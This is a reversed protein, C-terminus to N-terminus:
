LLFMSYKYDVMVEIYKVITEIARKDNNTNKRIVWAILWVGIIIIAFMILDHWGFFVSRGYIFM